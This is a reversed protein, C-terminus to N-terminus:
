IEYFIFFIVIFFLKIPAIIMHKTIITIPTLKNTKSWVFAPFLNKASYYYDILKCKIHINSRYKGDTRSSNHLLLHRCCLSRNPAVAATVGNFTCHSYSRFYGASRKTDAAVVGLRWWTTPLTRSRLPSLVTELFSYLGFAFHFVTGFLFYLGFVYHFGVVVRCLLYHQFFTVQNLPVSLSFKFHSCNTM